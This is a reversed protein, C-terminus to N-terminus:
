IGDEKFVDKMKTSFLEMAKNKIIKGHDLM